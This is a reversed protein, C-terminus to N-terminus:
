KSFRFAVRGVRGDTKELDVEEALAELLAESIDDESMTGGNEAKGEGVVTIYLQAEEESFSVQAHTKGGHLLLLLSETVCLKLDESDDLGLGFSAAVGGTALRVTTMPAGELPLRLTILEKM